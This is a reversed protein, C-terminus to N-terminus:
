SRWSLLTITVSAKSCVTGETDILEIDAIYESRGHQALEELIRDIESQPLRYEASLDTYAPRLFDMQISRVVPFFQEFDIITSVCTAAGAEALVGYAGMYMSNFHNDNGKLPLVARGFGYSVEDARIGTRRMFEISEMRQQVIERTVEKM